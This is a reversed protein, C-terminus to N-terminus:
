HIRIRLVAKFVKLIKLPPLILECVVYSTCVTYTTCESTSDSSFQRMKFATCVSYETLIRCYVVILIRWNRSRQEKSEVSSRRIDLTMKASIKGGKVM